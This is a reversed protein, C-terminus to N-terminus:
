IGLSDFQAKVLEIIEDIISWPDKTSVSFGAAKKHGGGNYKQCIVTLDVDGTARTSGKFDGDDLEYLFIAVEVGTTDRLQQVIGELHKSLAGYEAMDEATIVAAIIKGDEFTKCNLLAKGLMRNQIMTKAYYTDTCIKPYDIGLSMLFGAADMTAETTCSYQFVGTDHIIGTYLCEAIDKTIKDKGFQNYVLECTSSDDPIIYSYEAFGGNTMHHDFCCTHKAAEFFSFADGLRGGDSCDLAIYLDFVTGEPVTHIDEIKDTNKLFKFINPIPDLYVHVEVQPYYTAVYNYMAMCSGVCDGDPRIHGSIAVTKSNSLLTDFNEIM